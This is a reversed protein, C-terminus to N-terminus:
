STNPDISYLGPVVQNCTRFSLNLSVTKQSSAVKYPNQSLRFNLDVAHLTGNTSSHALVQVPSHVTSQTRTKLSCPPPLLQCNLSSKFEISCLYSNSESNSTSYIVRCKPAAGIFSYSFNCYFNINKFGM